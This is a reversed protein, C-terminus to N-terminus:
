KFPAAKKASNEKVRFAVVTKILALPLPKDPPFQVAGKSSKYPAFEVKFANIASPTPYFGIHHEYAAFHTLNGNLSFTPTQYAIAETAAPVAERITQRIKRLVVQVDSPFSKIYEDITGYRIKM